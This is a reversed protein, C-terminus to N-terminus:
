SVMGRLTTKCHLADSFATSSPRIDFNSLSSCISTAIHLFTSWGAYRTVCIMAEVTAECWVLATVLASSQKISQVLVVFELPTCSRVLVKM